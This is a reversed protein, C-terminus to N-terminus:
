ELRAAKSSFQLGQKAKVEGNGGLLGSPMIVSRHHSDLEESPLMQCFVTELFGSSIGDGRAWFQGFFADQVWRCIELSLHIGDHGHVLWEELRRGRLDAKGIKHRPRQNWGKSHLHNKKPPYHYPSLVNLNKMAFNSCPWSKGSIEPLSSCNYALGAWVPGTKKSLCGGDRVALLTKATPLGPSLM